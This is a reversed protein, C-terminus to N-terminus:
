KRRRRCDTVPDCVLGQGVEFAAPADAVDVQPVAFLYGLLAAVLEHCFHGDTNLEFQDLVFQQLSDTLASSCFSSEM